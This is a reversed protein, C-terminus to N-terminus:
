RKRAFMHYKVYNEGPKTESHVVNVNCYLYPAHSIDVRGVRQPLSYKETSYAPDLICFDKGDTSDILMYHGGRTFLGIEAGVPVGVHVVIKGGLKLHEIADELNNSQKYELNFKKAIVPGLIKMDTGVSHNAVSEEAIKVCDEVSLSTDTLLEVMMCISCPGCGSKAVSKMKQEPTFDQRLVNTRYPIHEYDCQNIYKM